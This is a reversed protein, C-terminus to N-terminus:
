VVKASVENKVRELVRAIADSCNYAVLEGKKMKGKLGIHFKDCADAETCKHDKIAQNIDRRSQFTTTAFLNHLISPSCKLKSTRQMRIKHLSGDERQDCTLYINGCGVAVKFTKSPKFSLNFDETKNEMIAGDPLITCIEWQRNSSWM